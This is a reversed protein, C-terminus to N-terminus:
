EIGLAELGELADMVAELNDETLDVAVDEPLTDDSGCGLLLLPTMLLIILLKKM